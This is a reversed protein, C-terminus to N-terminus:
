KAYRVAFRYTYNTNSVVSRDDSLSYVFTKADYPYVDVAVGLGLLYSVDINRPDSATKRVINSGLDHLLKIRLPYDIVYPDKLNYTSEGETVTVPMDVTVRTKDDLFDLKSSPRSPTVQLNGFNNMALCTPLFSNLANSFETNFDVLSPLVSKGNDYGYAIAVYNNVVGQDGSPSLLGGQAGLYYLLILSNGDVCNKVYSQVNRVEAPLVAEKHLIKTSITETISARFYFMILVLIILIIGLVVFLTLQGRKEM